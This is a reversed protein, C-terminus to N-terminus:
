IKGPRAYDMQEKLYNPRVLEPASVEGQAFSMAALQCVANLTADFVNDKADVIEIEFNKLSRQMQDVYQWGNGVGLWKVSGGGQINLFQEAPEWVMESGQLMMGWQESREYAAFYIERARAEVSVLISPWNFKVAASMAMAALSSVPIIPIDVAMALGQAAGIGIRLGTFSGPGSVVAVADLQGLEVGVTTLVDQVMPLLKQAHQRSTDSALSVYRGNSTQLAVQCLATSTDIALLNPM